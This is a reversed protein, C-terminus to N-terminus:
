KIAATNTKRRKARASRTKNEFELKSLRLVDQMQKDSALSPARVFQKLTQMSMNSTAIPTAKPRKSKKTPPYLWLKIDEPNGAILYAEFVNDNGDHSADLKFHNYLHMIRTVRDRRGELHYSSRAVSNQHTSAENSCAELYSVPATKSLQPAVKRIYSEALERASRVTCSPVKAIHQVVSSLNPVRMCSGNSACLIHDSGVNLYRQVQRTSYTKGFRHKFLRAILHAKSLRPKRLYNPYLQATLDRMPKSALDLVFDREATTEFAIPRATTEYSGGSMFKALTSTYIAAVSIVVRLYANFHIGCVHQLGGGGKMASWKFDTSFMVHDKNLVGKWDSHEMNLIIDQRTPLADFQIHAFVIEHFRSLSKTTPPLLEADADIVFWHPLQCGLFRQTKMAYEALFPKRKVSTVCRKMFNVMAANVAQNRCLHSQIMKLHDGISEVTKFVHAQRAARNVRTLQNLLLTYRKRLLDLAHQLAVLRLRWALNMCPYVMLMHRTLQFLAAAGIRRAFRSQLFKPRRLMHEVDEDLWELLPIAFLFEVVSHTKSQKYLMMLKRLHRERTATDWERVYQTLFRRHQKLVFEFTSSNCTNPQVDFLVPMGLTPSAAGLGCPILTTKMDLVPASRNDVASKPQSRKTAAVNDVLVPASRNDVASEPQSRKTAAVAVLSPMSKALASM